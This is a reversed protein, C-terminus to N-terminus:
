TNLACNLLLLTCDCSPSLPDDGFQQIRVHSPIATVFATSDITFKCLPFNFPHAFSGEPAFEVILSSRCHNCSRDSEKVVFQDHSCNSDLIIKHAYQHPDSHCCSDCKQEAGAHSPDNSIFIGGHCLCAHSTLLIATSTFSAIIKLWICNM